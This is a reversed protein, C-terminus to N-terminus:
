KKRVKCVAVAYQKSANKTKSSSYGECREKNEAMWEPLKKTNKSM